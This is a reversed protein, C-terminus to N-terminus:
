QNVAFLKPILHLDPTSSAQIIKPAVQSSARHPQESLASSLRCTSSLNQIREREIALALRNIRKAQLVSDTDDLDPNIIFM